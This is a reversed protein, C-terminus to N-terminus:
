GADVFKRIGDLVIRLKHPSNLVQGYMHELAEAIGHSIGGSHSLINEQGALTAQLAEDPGPFGGGHQFRQSPDAIEGVINFRGQGQVEIHQLRRVAFDAGCAFAPGIDGSGGKVAKGAITHIDAASKIM